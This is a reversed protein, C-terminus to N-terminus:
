TTVTPLRTALRGLEEVLEEVSLPPNQTHLMAHCNPCVPVLDKVPNVAYSRGILALPKRHHVHIFGAGRRRLAGRAGVRANPRRTSSSTPRRAPNFVTSPLTHMLTVM